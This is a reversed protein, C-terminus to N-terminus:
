VYSEGQEILAGGVRLWRQHSKSVSVGTETEGDFKKQGAKSILACSRM